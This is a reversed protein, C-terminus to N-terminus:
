PNSPSSVRGFPVLQNSAHSIPDALFVRFGLLAVVRILMVAGAFLAYRVRQAPIGPEMQIRGGRRLRVLSRHRRPPAHGTVAPDTAWHRARAVPRRRLPSGVQLVGAAPWCASRWLISCAAPSGHRSCAAERDLMRYSEFLEGASTARRTRGGSRHGGARPIQEVDNPSARGRRSELAGAERYCMGCGYLLALMAADRAGVSPRPILVDCPASALWAGTLCGGWFDCVTARTPM